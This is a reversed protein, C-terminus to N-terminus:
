QASPRPTGLKTHLFREEPQWLAFRGSGLHLVIITCVLLLRNDVQMGLALIDFAALVALLLAAVRGAMGLLMLIAGIAWVAVLLMLLASSIAIGAAALASTWAQPVLVIRWLIFSALLAGAMRVALPLWGEVVRKAVERNREYAGSEANIVGSVVLWDRGFSFLLPIAFVYAALQTIPPTWVPWLVVSIFGTQFGAILRRHDSSPLDYVPKHWRQRLWMGAVFLQRGLGLVLYWLPLKGYQIGLAVAILIGLGDFEIDLTAGLKTERNTIRAVFGDLFDVLRELTYLLAPAWALAAVPQPGFLFGALLCTLLGRILTIANAYGLSPFIKVESPRHNYPLAWWLIGMQVVTSAAALAAWRLADTASWRQLMVTYGIFVGVTYLIAVMVWQRRLRSLSQQEDLVM